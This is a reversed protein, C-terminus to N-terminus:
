FMKMVRSLIDVANATVGQEGRGWLGQQGGIHQRGRCIVRYRDELPQSRETLVMNGPEAMNNYTLAENRKQTQISNRPISPSCKM